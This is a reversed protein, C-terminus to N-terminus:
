IARKNYTSKLIHTTDWLLFDKLFMVDYNDRKREHFLIHSLLGQSSSWVKM